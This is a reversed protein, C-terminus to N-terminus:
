NYPVQGTVELESYIDCIYEFTRFRFRVLNTQHGVTKTYVNRWQFPLHEQLFLALNVACEARAASLLAWYDIVYESPLSSGDGMSNMGPRCDAKRLGSACKMQWPSSARLIEKSVDGWRIRM